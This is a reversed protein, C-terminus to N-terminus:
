LRTKSISIIVNKSSNTYTVLVTQLTISDKKYTFLDTTPSPFTTELLDWDVGATEVPIVEQDFGVVVSGLSNLQPHSLNGSSDKFVWATVGVKGASANGNESKSLAVGGQDADELIPFSERNSM